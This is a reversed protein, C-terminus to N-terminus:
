AKKASERNAAQSEADLACLSRGFCQMIDVAASVARLVEQSKMRRLLGVLRIPQKPPSTAARIGEPVPEFIARFREPEISGLIRQWFLLNRIARLADPSSAEVALTQLIKDRASLIGRAMDLLGQKHMEQLLEYGALIAAAHEEPARELRLRLEERLNRPAVDLPIPQAM